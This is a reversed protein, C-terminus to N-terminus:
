FAPVIVPFADQSPNPGVLPQRVRLQNNEPADRDDANGANSVSRLETRCRPQRIPFDRVFKDEGDAGHLPIQVLKVALEVDAAAGLRNDAGALYTQNGSGAKAEVDSNERGTM